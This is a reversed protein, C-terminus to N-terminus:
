DLSEKRSFRRVLKTSDSPDAWELELKEEGIGSFILDHRPYFLDFAFLGDDELHFAATKLAAIQDDVTFMHQLPRFPIIVLPYKTNSRFTRIDGRVVSVLERVDKAERKLNNGLANLMPLSNDVGHIAIGARAIPLLVRGTGCALELVPGGIRRALDLYFPVDELSPKEAYVQDYHQASLNYSDVANRVPDGQLCIKGNGPENRSVAVEPRRLQFRDRCDWVIAPTPM